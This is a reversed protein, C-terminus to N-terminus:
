RTGLRTVIPREPNSLDLSYDTLPVPYNQGERITVIFVTDSNEDRVINEVFQYDFESINLRQAETFNPRSICFISAGDQYTAASLWYRQGQAIFESTYTVRFSDIRDITQNPLCRDDVYLENSNGNIELNSSQTNPLLLIGSDVSIDDAIVAIGKLTNGPEVEPAVSPNSPYTQGDFQMRAYYLKDTYDDGQRVIKSYPSVIDNWGNTRQNTVLIPSPSVTMETVLRYDQGDQTFILTKCGGSGCNYKGVLYVIAEPQKDGNIDVFNYYYRSYDDPEVQEAYDPMTQLIAQELQPNPETESLLYQIEGIKIDETDQLSDSLAQAQTNSEFSSSSNDKSEETKFPNSLTPTSTSM